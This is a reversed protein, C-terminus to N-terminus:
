GHKEKDIDKKIKYGKMKDPRPADSKIRIKESKGQKRGGGGRNKM